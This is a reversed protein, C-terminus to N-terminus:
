SYKRPFRLLIGATAIIGLVMNYYLYPLIEIPSIEALGAAILMQAGYPLLGQVVCSFTDLLSASKCKNVGYQDAIDNSIKGVSLIAITNNATM